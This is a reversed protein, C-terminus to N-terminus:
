YYLNKNFIIFNEMFSNCTCNVEQFGSTQAEPSSISQHARDFEDQISQERMIRSHHVKCCISGIIYIVCFSLFVSMASFSAVVYDHKTISNDLTLEVHKVRDPLKYSNNGSCDSDDANM